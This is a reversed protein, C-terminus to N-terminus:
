NTQFAKESPSQLSKVFNDGGQEVTVAAAPHRWLSNAARSAPYNGLNVEIM